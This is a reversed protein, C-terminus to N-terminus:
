EAAKLVILADVAKAGCGKAGVMVPNIDIEAIVDELDLALRSIRLLTDQICAFDSPTRGRAGSLIKYGKTQRIMASVNGKTLPAVRLAVDGFVEVFIGGLGFAVVPGFQPDHKMGVICEVSDTVMEQILVGTIAAEPYNTQARKILDDFATIAEDETRVNLKVLGAETKHLIDPSDIKLVVPWDFSKLATSLEDPTQVVQEKAVPIGYAALVGKGEHESLSKRGESQAKGIIARAQDPDLGDLPLETFENEDNESASAWRQIRGYEMLAAMARAADEPAEYVPIEADRLMESVVPNEGFGRMQALILPKGMNKKINIMMETAEALTKIADPNTPNGQIYPSTSIIGDVYPLAAVKEVIEPVTMPNNDGATDIPNVPDAAHPLLNTRIRGQADNDITPLDLGLMGCYDAITVCFGGGPAVVAVRKGRPLPLRSLAEAVDFTQVPEQTRLIGLQRCMADFVADSGSLSGTHSLTAKGGADSRGAKYVAIPKRRVVDRAVEIFRRGDKLGELYFVIAKTEPDEDLYELYDVATVDAQNGASVFRSFGYGKTGAVSVLFGGFTGSQSVFAITGNKPPPDFPLCLRSTASWVGM